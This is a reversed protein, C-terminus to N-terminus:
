KSSELGKSRELLWRFLMPKAASARLENGRLLVSKVSCQVSTLILALFTKHQELVNKRVRVGRRHTEM